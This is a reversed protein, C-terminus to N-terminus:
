RDEDYTSMRGSTCRLRPSENEIQKNYGSEDSYGFLAVM